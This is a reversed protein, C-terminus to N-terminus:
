QSIYLTTYSKIKYLIGYVICYKPILHSLNHDECRFTINFYTPKNQMRSPLRLKSTWQAKSRQWQQHWSFGWQKMHEVLYGNSNPQCGTLSRRTHMYLTFHLRCLPDGVWPMWDYWVHAHYVPFCYQTAKNSKQVISLTDTPCSM